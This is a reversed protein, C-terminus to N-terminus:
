NVREVAYAHHIRVRDGVRIGSVYEGNVVRKKDGYRVLLFGNSFIEVVTGVHVKCYDCFAEPMRAYGGEREDINKNHTEHWYERIVRMDWYDDIKMEEALKKIRRFAAIFYKEVFNRSPFEGDRLANELKNYKEQSMKGSELLVGACPFAYRLFFEEVCVM